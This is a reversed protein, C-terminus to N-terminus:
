LRPLEVDGLRSQTLVPIRLQRRLEVYLSQLSSFYRDRPAFGGPRPDEAGDIIQRLAYCDRQLRLASVALRDDALVLLQNCRVRVDDHAARAAGPSHQKGSGSLAELNRTSVVFEQAREYLANDWRHKFERRRKLIEAAQGLGFTLLAAIFATLITSLIPSAM